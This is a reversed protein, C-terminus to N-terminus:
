PLVMSQLYDKRSFLLTLLNEREQLNFFSCVGRREQIILFWSVKQESSFVAIISLPSVSTTFISDVKPARVVM